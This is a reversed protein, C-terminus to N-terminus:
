VRPSTTPRPVRELADAIEDAYGGIADWDRFDGEPAKVMRIVAREAFGLADADLMGGFVRHNRPHVTERLRDLQKQSVAHGADTGTPGSSFLWTPTVSLTADYRRTFASAEKMWSGAYVASGLVVADYGAPRADSITREDVNMGRERLREAIRHGIERTSGHKSASSVLVNMSESRERTAM